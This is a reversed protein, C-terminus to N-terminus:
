RQRLAYAKPEPACHKFHVWQGSIPEIGSAVFLM